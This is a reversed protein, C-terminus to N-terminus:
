SCYSKIETAVNHYTEVEQELTEYFENYLFALEPVKCFTKLKQYSFKYLVEYITDVVAEFDAIKPHDPLGLFRKASKLFSNNNEVYGAMNEKLEHPFMLSALITVFPPQSVETSYWILRSAVAELDVESM